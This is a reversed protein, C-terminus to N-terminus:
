SLLLKVGTLALGSLLGFTLFAAAGSIGDLPRPRNLVRLTSLAEDLGSTFSAEGSEDYQYSLLLLGSRLPVVIRGLVPHADFEAYEAEKLMVTPSLGRSNYTAMVSYVGAGPNLRQQQALAAQANTVVAAALEVKFHKKGRGELRFGEVGDFNVKTASGLSGEGMGSRIEDRLKEELEARGSSSLAAPGRPIVSLSVREAFKDKPSEGHDLFRVACAGWPGGCGGEPGDRWGSPVSLAYGHEKDPVAGEALSRSTGGSLLWGAVSAACLLLVAGIAKLVLSDSSDSGRAIAPAPSGQSSQAKGRWKAFVVGCAACELAEAAAAAGCAPCKPQEEKWQM